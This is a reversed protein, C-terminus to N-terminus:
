FKPYDVPVEGTYWRYDVGKSNPVYKIRSVNGPVWLTVCQKNHRWWGKTLDVGRYLSQLGGGPGWQSLCGITEYGPFVGLTDEEGENKQEASDQCFITTSPSPYSSRKLPSRLKGYQSNKGTWPKLLYDCLGYCSNAWFDHPYYLGSDHWEDVVTASPCAFLKRTNAFYKRYGLAWYADDSTETLEVQSRPNPYWEGGNPLYTNGPTGLTFYTDNNDDAYLSSSISIQHANATCQAMRASEKARSLAPLLMGALIAIIAIVVLLEILTFGFPVSKIAKKETQNPQLTRM